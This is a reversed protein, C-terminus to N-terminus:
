KKLHLPSRTKCGVRGPTSRTRPPSSIILFGRGAWMQMCSHTPICPGLQEKIASMTPYSGGILFGPGPNKGRLPTKFIGVGLSSMFVLTPLLRSNAIGILGQIRGGVMEELVLESIGPIGLQTAEAKIYAIGASVDRKSISIIAELSQCTVM